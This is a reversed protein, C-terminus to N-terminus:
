SQEAPLLWTVWISPRGEEGKEMKWVGHKEGKLLQADTSLPFLFYESLINKVLSLCHLTFQAPCGELFAGTRCRGWVGGDGETWWLYLTPLQKKATTLHHREEPWLCFLPPSSPSGTQCTNPHASVWGLSPALIQKMPPCLVSGIWGTPNFHLAISCCIGQVWLSM